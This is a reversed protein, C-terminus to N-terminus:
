NGIDFFMRTQIFTTYFIHQIIHVKGVDLYLSTYYKFTVRMIHPGEEGCRVIKKNLKNMTIGNDKRMYCYKTNRSM